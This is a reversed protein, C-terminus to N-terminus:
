SAAPSVPLASSPQLHTCVLALHSADQGCCRCASSRQALGDNIILCFTPPNALVGLQFPQYPNQPCSKCNLTVQISQFFVDLIQSIVGSLTLCQTQSLFSFHLNFFISSHRIPLLVALFCRPKCRVMFQLLALSNTRLADKMRLHM